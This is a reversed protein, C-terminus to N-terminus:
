PQHGHRADNVVKGNLICSGCNTDLSRKNRYHWELGNKPDTHRHWPRRRKIWSAWEQWCHEIETEIAREGNPMLLKASPCTEIKAQKWANATRSQAPRWGVHPHRIQPQM